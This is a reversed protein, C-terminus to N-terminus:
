FAGLFAIESIRANKASKGSFSRNNQFLKKVTCKKVM